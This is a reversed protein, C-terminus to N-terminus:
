EDFDEYDVDDEDDFDDEEDEFDDEEEDDDEDDDEYDDDEDDDDDDDFDDDEDDDFDDEDDEFDGDEEFEDDDDGFIFFPLPNDDTGPVTQFGDVPMLAPLLDEQNTVGNLVMINERSIPRKQLVWVSYQLWCPGEKLFM